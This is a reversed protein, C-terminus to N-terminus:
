MVVAPGVTPPLPGWPKTRLKEPGCCRWELEMEGALLRLEGEQVDGEAKGVGPEAPKEGM